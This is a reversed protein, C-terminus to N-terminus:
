FNFAAQFFVRRSASGSPSAFIGGALSTAKQFRPGPGYNTTSGSLLTPVVSGSPTGYDIDNFLNLAQASFTLSYKHGTNAAPPGYGGGGRGGGGPGGGFGGMPGGPGGPRQGNPSNQSQLKPGIGFARSVRLNFAVSASSNLLNPTLLAEGAQPTLDLCGFSTNVFEASGSNCSASNATGPRDNFFDDGTLDTDTTVNYPRGSQAILFPNFTIALPGTYNGMVFLMNRRVFAARGYDQRLNYSNSVTGTDGNAFNLTYFGMVSLTPKLRANVNAIVQNQKFV